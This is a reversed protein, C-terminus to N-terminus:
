LGKGTKSKLVYVVKYGTNSLPVQFRKRTHSKLVYVVKVWYWVPSGISGKGLIPSPFKYFRKGISSPSPFSSYNGQLPSPVRSIKGTSSQPFLVVKGCYQNPSGISCKELVPSTFRSGKELILNSFM